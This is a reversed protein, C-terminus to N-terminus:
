YLEVGSRYGYLVCGDSFNVRKNDNYYLGGVVACVSAAVLAVIIIIKKIM